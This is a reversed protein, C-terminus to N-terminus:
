TDSEYVIYANVIKTVYKNQEVVLPNNEKKIGMKYRFLEISHVFHTCLPSLYSIYQQQNGVLLMILARTKKNIYRVAFYRSIFMNQSGDDGFFKKGLYYILDHM